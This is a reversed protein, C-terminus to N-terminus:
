VHAQVPIANLADANDSISISRLIERKDQSQRCHNRIPLGQKGQDQRFLLLNVKAATHRLFHDCHEKRWPAPATYRCVFWALFCHVLKGSIKVNSRKITMKGGVSGAGRGGGCQVGGM